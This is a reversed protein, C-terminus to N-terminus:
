QIRSCLLTLFGRKEPNNVDGRLEDASPATSHSTPRGGCKSASGLDSKAVRGAPSAFQRGTTLVTVLDSRSPVPVKQMREFLVSM